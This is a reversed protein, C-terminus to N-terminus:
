RTLRITLKRTQTGAGDRIKIVVTITRLGHACYRRLM